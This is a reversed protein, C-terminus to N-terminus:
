DQRSHSAAAARPRLFLPKVVGAVQDKESSIGLLMQTGLLHETVLGGKKTLKTTSSSGTELEDKKNNDWM